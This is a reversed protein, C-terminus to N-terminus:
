KPLVTQCLTTWHETRSMLILTNWYHCYICMKWTCTIVTPATGFREGDRCYSGQGMGPHLRATEWRCLRCSMRSKLWSRSWATCQRGWSSGREPQWRQRRRGGWSRWRWRVVVRPHCLTFSKVMITRCEQAKRYHTYCFGLVSGRPEWLGGVHKWWKLIVKFPTHSLLYTSFQVFLILCIVFCQMFCLIIFCSIISNIERRTEHLHGNIHRLAEAVARRRKTWSTAALSRVLVLCMNSWDQSRYM